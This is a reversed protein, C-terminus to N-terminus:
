RWRRFGNGKVRRVLALAAMGGAVAGVTGLVKSRNRRMRKTAARAADKVGMTRLTRGRRELALASDHLRDRVAAGANRAANGATDLSGSLTTLAREAANEVRGPM